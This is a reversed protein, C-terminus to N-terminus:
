DLIDFTLIMFALFSETVKSISDFLLKLMLRSPPFVILASDFEKDKEDDLPNENKSLDYLVIMGSSSPNDAKCHSAILKCFISKVKTLAFSM